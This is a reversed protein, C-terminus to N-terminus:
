NDDGIKSNRGSYKYKDAVGLLSYYLEPFKHKVDDKIHEFIYIVKEEDSMNYALIENVPIQRERAERITM